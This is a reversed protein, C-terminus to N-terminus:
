KTKLLESINVIQLNKEAAKEILVPLAKLSSNTPHMLIIDGNKLNPAINEVIEDPNEIRWDITDLSWMITTMNHQAAHDITRQDFSGYPPTFYKPSVGLIRNIIENTKTIEMQIEETSITSMDQHSYAHNGIEHKANRVMLALEPFNEVWRGELFFTLSINKEKLLELLDILYKNGWAVNVMFSIKPISESGHYLPFSNKNDEM